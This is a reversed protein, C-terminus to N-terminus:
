VDTAMYTVPPRGATQERPQVPAQRSDDNRHSTEEAQVLGQFRAGLCEYGSGRSPSREAGQVARGGNLLSSMAPGSLNPRLRLTGLDLGTKKWAQLAGNTM